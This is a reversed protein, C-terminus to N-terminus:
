KTVQVDANASQLRSMYGMGAIAMAIQDPAVRSDVQMTATGARLNVEVHSVGDLKSLERQVRSTCGGCTMGTVDFSLTQM